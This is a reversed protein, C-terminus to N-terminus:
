NEVFAPILCILSPTLLLGSTLVQRYQWANKEKLFCVILQPKVKLKSMIWKGVADDKGDTNEIPCDHPLAALITPQVPDAALGSAIM